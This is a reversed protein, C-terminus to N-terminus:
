ATPYANLYKGLNNILDKSDKLLGLAMNCKDCLLGRVKGTTHCHDVNLPRRKHEENCVACKNNHQILMEQYQELSIGYNQKLRQKRRHKKVKDPNAKSWAISQKNVCSKCTPRRYGEKTRAGTQKYYNDIPQEMNCKNCVKM